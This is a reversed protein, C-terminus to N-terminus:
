FGGVIKMPYYHTRVNVNRSKASLTFLSLEQRNKVQGVCQTLYRTLMLYTAFAVFSM